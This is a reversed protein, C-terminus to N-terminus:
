LYGAHTIWGICSQQSINDFAHSVTSYADYGHAELTKGWRKIWAKVSSFAEEIPNFWPSYPPLFLYDIHADDLAGIFELNYHISSNDLIVLNKGRQLMTPILINIGFWAVDSGKFPGSITYACTLGETDIGAITSLREKRVFFGPAQVRTGSRSRGFHRDLNRRDTRVEDIWVAQYPDKDVMREVFIAQKTISAEKAIIQVGKRTINLEKFAQLMTAPCVLLGTYDFFKDCYEDLYLTPCDRVLSDVIGLQKSDIIKREQKLKRVTGTAKFQSYAKTLSGVPIRSHEAVM